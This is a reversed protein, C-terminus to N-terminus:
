NLIEISCTTSVVNNSANATGWQVTLDIVQSITTNITTASTVAGNIVSNVGSNAAYQWRGQPFVTGTVGTTRCTIDYTADFYKDTGGLSNINTATTDFITTSGLKLRVRITPTSTENIYGRVTLRVIKGIALFNAPLTKTGIGTGLISTETTTNSITVTNTQTFITSNVWQNIGSTTGVYVPKQQTTDFAELGQVKSAIANWQVTTMRPALFGRDTSDIQFISSSNISSTAIGIGGITNILLRSAIGNIGRTSFHLEGYRNVHDTVRTQITAIVDTTPDNKFGISIWNNVTTNTNVLDIISISNLSYPNTSSQDDVTCLRARQSVTNIGVRGNVDIGLRDIGTVRLRIFASGGTNGEIRTTGDNWSIHTQNTPMLVNGNIRAAGEVNLRQGTNILTNILLNGTDTVTVRVTNNTRLNFAFADNTGISAIAGFSNGGNVFYTGSLGSINGNLKQIATLITDSSSITGAGSVYGTLTSAIARANTFYLNTGETVLTTTYDGSQAIIAGIRGFVSTVPATDVDTWSATITGGDQQNLTLTKTTTGTVSASTITNNYATYWDNYNASTIFGSDSPSSQTIYFTRDITLDGGGMLPYTTNIVRSLPTINDFLYEIYSYINKFVYNIKPLDNISTLGKYPNEFVM